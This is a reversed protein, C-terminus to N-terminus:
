TQNFMKFRIPPYLKKKVTLEKEEINLIVGGIDPMWRFPSKTAGSIPTYEQWCPLLIFRVNRMELYEYVHLHARIDLDYKQKTRGLANATLQQILEKEAMTGKYLTNSCEHQAYISFGSIDELEVSHGSYIANVGYGKLDDTIAKTVNSDLSEHYGSGTTLYVEKVSPIKVLPLILKIFAKRQEDIDAVIQGQGYANRNTGNILDGLMLVTDPREQKNWEIFNKFYKALQRQGMNRALSINNGLEGIYNDPFVARLSGVHTDALCTIKM